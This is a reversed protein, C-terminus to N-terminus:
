SPNAQLGAPDVPVIEAETTTVDVPQPTSRLIREGVVKLLRAPTHLNMGAQEQGPYGKTQAIGAALAIDKIERSRKGDTEKSQLLARLRRRLRADLERWALQSLEGQKESPQNLLKRISWLATRPHGKVAGPILGRMHAIPRSM